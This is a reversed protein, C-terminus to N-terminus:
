KKLKIKLEIEKKLDKINSDTDKGIEKTKALQDVLEKIPSEFDLYEM